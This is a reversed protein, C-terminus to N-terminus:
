AVVLVDCPAHELVRQAVSGLLTRRVFDDGSRGVILLQAGVERAIDNLVVAPDGVATRTEIGAGQPGDLLGRAEALLRETDPRPGALETGMGASRVDAAVAVIVLARYEIGLERARALARRSADSGD